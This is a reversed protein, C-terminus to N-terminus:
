FFEPFALLYVLQKKALNGVMSFLPPGLAMLGAAKSTGGWGGNSIRLLGRKTKLGLRM